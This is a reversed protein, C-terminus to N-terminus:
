GSHLSGQPLATFFLEYVVRRASVGVSRRLASAPHTAVIVRSRPGTPSLLCTRVTLSPAAPARKPIRRRSTPLCPWVRGCRLCTSCITTRAACSGHWGMGALDAVVGGDGYQGDCDCSGARSHCISAGWTARRHGGRCAPTRGRYDGNGMGAFTGLWQQTHAHLLTTRTRVVEGRQRGLYGAACVQEFRRQAAPLESLQPLARQRAAQRTGDVDFVVGSLAKDIGCDARGQPAKCWLGRACTRDFLARIAEVAPQDIAALFRSLTSRHPLQERGFLAMFPTAFPSLREYFTQLTREGSLAYGILVAM